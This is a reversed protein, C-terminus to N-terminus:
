PCSVPAADIGADRPAALMSDWADYSGGETRVLFWYSEGPAPSRQFPVPDASVNDALCEETAAQYDGGNARLTGLNGRVAEYLTAPPDPDWGIADHEVALSPFPRARVQIVTDFCFVGHISITLDLLPFPVRPAVVGSDFHQVPDDGVVLDLSLQETIAFEGGIKFTGSGRIRLTTGNSQTVVWDVNTVAYYQYLSDSGSPTLRFKGGIPANEMVPCACPDFCGRQFTSDNDLRYHVGPVASSQARVLPAMLALLGAMLLVHVLRTMPCGGVTNELSGAEDTDRDMEDACTVCIAM